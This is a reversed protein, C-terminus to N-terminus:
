RYRRYRLAKTPRNRKEVPSGLVTKISDDDAVKVMLDARDEESLLIACGALHRVPAQDLFMQRCVKATNIPLKQPYGQFFM